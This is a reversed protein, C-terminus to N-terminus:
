RAEVLASFTDANVNFTQGTKSTALPALGPDITAAYAPEASDTSYEPEGLIRSRGGKRHEFRIRGHQADGEVGDGHQTRPRVARGGQRPRTSTAVLQKNISARWVDRTRHDPVPIRLGAFNSKIGLRQLMQAIQPGGCAGGGSQHLDAGFSCTPAFAQRPRRRGHTACIQIVITEEYIAANPLTPCSAAQDVSQYIARRDHLPKV